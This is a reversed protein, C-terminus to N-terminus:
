EAITIPEWHELPNNEDEVSLLSGPVTECTIAERRGLKARALVKNTALDRVRVPVSGDLTEPEFPSAIRLTGGGLSELLVYAVRGGRQEATVLFAGPARLSHFRADLEAPFAPFVHLVGGYSGLLMANLALAMGPGHDAQLYYSRWQFVLGNERDDVPRWRAGALAADADGMAAANAVPAGGCWSLTSTGCAHGKKQLERVNQWTMRAAQREESSGHFASVLGCPFVPAIFPIAAGHGRDISERGEWTAWDGRPTLPLPALKELRQRWQAALTGADGLADAAKIAMELTMRIIAVDYTSNRGLAKMTPCYAEFSISPEVVYCGHEEDWQLYDTYFTAVDSLLPYAVDRLFELDGTYEYYQWFLQAIWGSTSISTALVFWSNETLEHGDIDGAHPLRAGRMQFYENTDKRCQPLMRSYLRFYPEMLDLRNSGFLGWYNAQININGHYDADWAPVNEKIWVGQLGPSVKGRRLMSGALYNSVYWWKEAAADNVSVFSREWFRRWWDAHDAFLGEYGKAEARDLRAIAEARPNDADCRSAITLLVTLPGSTEGACEALVGRPVTQADCPHGLIRMAVVYADGKVLEQQVICDPGSTESEAAPLCPHAQRGLTFTATGLPQEGPDIRLVLVDDSRSCFGSVVFPSERSTATDAHLRTPYFTQTCLAEYLSVRQTCKSHISGDAIQLRLFGATTLHSTRYYPTPSEEKQVAEFRAEDRTRYIERVDEFMGPPFNSVDALRVWLDTKGLALTLNDPYGCVLAGFDGNGIPAGDRWDASPGRPDSWVMDHRRMLSPLDLHFRNHEETMVERSVSRTAM